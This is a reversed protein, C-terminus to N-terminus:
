GIFLQTYIPSDHNLSAVAYVNSGKFFIGLVFM